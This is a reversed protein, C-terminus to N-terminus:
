RVFVHSVFNGVDVLSSSEDIGNKVALACFKRIYDPQGPTGFVLIFRENGLLKRSLLLTLIVQDARMNIENVLLRIALHNVRMLISTTQMVQAAEPVLTRIGSDLLIPPLIKANLKLGDADLINNLRAHREGLAVDSMPVSPIDGALPDRSHLVPPSHQAPAAAPLEVEGQISLPTEIPKAPTDGVPLTMLEFDPPSPPPFVAPNQSILRIDDAIKYDMLRPSLRKVVEPTLNSYEPVLSIQWDHRLGDGFAQYLDEGSSHARKRRLKKPKPPEAFMAAISDLLGEPEQQKPRVVLIPPAASSGDLKLRFHRKAATRVLMAAIENLSRGCELEADPDNVQLRNKSIMLSKFREPYDRYAQFCANLLELNDLILDLTNHPPLAKIEPVLDRLISIVPGRLISNLRRVTKNHEEVASAKKHPTKKIGKTPPKVM